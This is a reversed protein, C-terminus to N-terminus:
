LAQSLMTLPHGRGHVRLHNQLWIHRGSLNPISWAMAFTGSPELAELAKTCVGRELTGSDNGVQLTAWAALTISEWKLHGHLESVQLVARNM